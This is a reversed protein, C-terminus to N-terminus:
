YGKYANRLAYAEELHQQWYSCGKEAVYALGENRAKEVEEYNASGEIGLRAARAYLATWGQVVIKQTVYVEHQIVKCGVAFMLGRYNELLNSFDHRWQDVEMQRAGEAHPDSQQTAQPSASANGTPAIQQGNIPAGLSQFKQIAALQREKICAVDSGCAQRAHLLPLTVSKSYQSGYVRRVYEYGANAVNDLQALEANSCIAHEDPYTAKACDFSPAQALASTCGAILSLSVYIATKISM